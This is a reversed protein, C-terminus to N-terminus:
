IEELAGPDGEKGRRILEGVHTEAMFSIAETLRGPAMRGGNDRLRNEGAVWAAPLCASMEEVNM